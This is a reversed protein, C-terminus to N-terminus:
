EIIRVDVWVARHDSGLDPGVGRDEIHIGESVCIHDIPVGFSFLPLAYWTPMVGRGKASDELQSASLFDVFHPSWPTMNFDGAVITKTAGTEKAISEALRQMHANRLRCVKANIPPYPHTGILRVRKDGVLVLADISAILPTYEAVEVKQFPTKSLLAIGFNGAQIENKQHPYLDSLKKLAPEWEPSAELLFVFDADKERLYTIVDDHRRNSSLVNFNMLRFSEGLEKEVVASRPSPVLYPSIIWLNLAALVATVVAWRSNRCLFFLLAAVVLYLAYQVRFNALLDM